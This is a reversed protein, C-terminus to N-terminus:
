EWPTLEAVKLLASTSLRPIRTTPRNSGTNRTIQFPLSGQIIGIVVILHFFIIQESGIQYRIGAIDLSIRDIYLECIFWCSIGGFTKDNKLPFVTCLLNDDVSCSGYCPGFKWAALLFGPRYYNSTSCLFM